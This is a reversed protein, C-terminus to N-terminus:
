QLVTRMSHLALGSGRKKEENGWFRESYRSIRVFVANYRQAIRHLQDKKGNKRSYSKRKERSRAIIYGVSRSADM